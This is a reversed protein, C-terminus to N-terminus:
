GRRRLLAACVLVLNAILLVVFVAYGHRTYFTERPSRFASGYIMGEKFTGLRAEIRGTPGVVMSVGTYAGRFLTVRNEVARLIAMEAHQIPGQNDGFWGDNTINVLFDAGDRIYRRTFDSFSSEFCILVGFRGVSSDFITRHKGAVFNAQGFDLKSLAPIYESWPMKEGFPLLNIKHYNGALTGNKSVLAAANHAIWQDDKVTHDVYGTLIDIAGARAMSELWGLYQPTAKFSVPAATEPFVILHAGHAAAIGCYKEMQMFISDRYSTEFKLGLNVNPQMLAVGGEGNLRVKTRDCRAIEHAGWALHGTAIAVFALGAIVRARTRRAALAWAVCANLLVIVLTLGFPGYFSVGQIALPHIALAYALSGWSFGLEGHSRIFEALSWVAPAAFVAGPGLRGALFAQALGFLGTYCALYASLLVLGPGLIWPVTVGSEPILKLIWCLLIAFFVAGQIFGVWFGRRLGARPRAIFYWLVPVLAVVSLYRTPFPPFCLALLLGSSVGALLEDRWRAIWTGPGQM